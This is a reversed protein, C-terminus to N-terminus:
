IKRREKFIRSKPILQFPAFGVGSDNHYHRNLSDYIKTIHHSTFAGGVSLAYYEQIKDRSHQKPFYRPEWYTPEFPTDHLVYNMEELALMFYAEDPTGAGFTGVNVKPKDYIKRATAFVKTGKEFYILESSVDYIKEFGYKERVDKLSIWRSLVEQSETDVRKRNIMTFECGKLQGFLNVICNVPSAIMDVDLFLTRDFPTLKDLYLKAKYPDSGIYKDPIDILKDFVDRQEDTLLGVGEGSHAIAIPLKKDHWKLSVALNVAMRAYYPHGIAILLVGHKSDQM